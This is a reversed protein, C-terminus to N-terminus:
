RHIGEKWRNTGKYFGQLVQASKPQETHPKVLKKCPSKMFIASIQPPILSDFKM